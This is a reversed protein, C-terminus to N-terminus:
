VDTVVSGLESLPIFNETYIEERNVILSHPVLESGLFDLYARVADEPKLNASSGCACRLFLGKKDALPRFIFIM